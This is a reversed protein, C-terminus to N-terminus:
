PRLELWADSVPPPYLAGVVTAVIRDPKEPPFTDVREIFDHGALRTGIIRMLEENLDAAPAM